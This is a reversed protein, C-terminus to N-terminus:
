KKLKLYMTCTNNESFINEREYMNEMPLFITNKQTNIYDSLLKYMTILRDNRFIIQEESFGLKNYFKENSKKFAYYTKPNLNKIIDNDVYGKIDEEKSFIPLESANKIYKSDFHKEGEDHFIKRNFIMETQWNPNKEENTNELFVDSYYSVIETDINNDKFYTLINKLEKLKWKNTSGVKEKYGDTTYGPCFLAFFNLKEEKYLSKIINIFYLKFDSKRNYNPDFFVLSAEYINWLKIFVYEDLVIKQKEKYALGENELAILLAKIATINLQTNDINFIKPIDNVFVKIM